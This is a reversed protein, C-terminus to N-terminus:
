QMDISNVFKQMQSIYNRWDFLEREVLPKNKSTLISRLENELNNEDVLYGNKGDKLYDALDSTNNAIVSTGLSIAEAFKTPFGAMTVRSKPRIIVSYDSSKVVELSEKHSVRGLFEIKERDPEVDYIEKFSEETIGVVKLLFDLDKINNLSKVVEGLAEKLASPSGSYVLTPKKNESKKNNYKEDELDVLPPIKIAITKGSYYNYLYNSITIVADLRPQIIRMRIESDLKRIIKETITKGSMLFWEDTDGILTIRKKNCIKKMKFLGLACYDYAIVASVDYKCILEKLWELKSFRIIKQAAGSCKLEYIEFGDYSYKTKLFDSDAQPNAGVFVVNYGLEKLIKANNLVRHAAANKDPMQFTGAYIITKM